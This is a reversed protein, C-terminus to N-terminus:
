DIQTIAQFMNKIINFTSLRKKKLPKMSYTRQFTTTKRLIQLETM